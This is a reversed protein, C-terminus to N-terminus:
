QHEEQIYFQFCNKTQEVVFLYDDFEVQYKITKNTNSVREINEELFASVVKVFKNKTDSHIHLCVEPSENEIINVSWDFKKGLGANMTYGGQDLIEFIWKTLRKQLV